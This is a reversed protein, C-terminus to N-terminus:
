YGLVSNLIKYHLLNDEGESSSDDSQAGDSGCLSVFMVVDFAVFHADMMM